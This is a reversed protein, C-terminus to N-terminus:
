YNIFCIIGFDSLQSSFDYEPILIYKIAFAFTIVFYIQESHPCMVVVFVPLHGDHLEHPVKSIKSSDGCFVEAVLFVRECTFIM